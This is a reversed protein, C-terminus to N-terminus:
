VYIILVSIVITLSVHRSPPMECVNYIYVEVKFQVCLQLMHIVTKGVQIILLKSRSLAYTISQLYTFCKIFLFFSLDCVQAADVKEEEVFSHVLLQLYM